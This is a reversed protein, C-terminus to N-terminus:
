YELESDSLYSCLMRKAIIGLMKLDFGVDKFRMSTLLPKGSFWCGVGHAVSSTVSYALEKHYCSEFLSEAYQDEAPQTTYIFM